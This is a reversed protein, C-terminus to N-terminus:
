NQKKLPSVMCAFLPYTDWSSNFYILHHLPQVLKLYKDSISVFLFCNKDKGCDIFGDECTVTHVRMVEARQTLDKFVTNEVFVSHNFYLFLLQM